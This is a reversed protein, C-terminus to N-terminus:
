RGESVPAVPQGGVAPGAAPPAMNEAVHQALMQNGESAPMVHEEPEPTTMAGNEDEEPKFHHTIIHGGNAAHRIRMEHVHRKKAAAKKKKSGGLHVSARTKNMSIVKEGKHLQYVGDKKATGGEKFTASASDSDYHLGGSEQKKEAENMAEVHPLAKRSGYKTELNGHKAVMKTRDEVSLKTGIRTLRKAREDALDKHANQVDEDSMSKVDEDTHLAM